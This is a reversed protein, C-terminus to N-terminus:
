RRGVRSRTAPSSPVQAAAAACSVLPRGTPATSVAGCRAARRCRRPSPARRAGVQGDRDAEARRQEVVPEPQGALARRRQGVDRAARRCGRGRGCRRRGRAHLGAGVVRGTANWAMRLKARSARPVATIRHDCSPKPRVDDVEVSWCVSRLRIPKLSPVLLMLSSSARRGRRSRRPRRRSRGPTSSAAAAVEDGPADPHQDLRPVGVEEGVLLCTKPRNLFEPAGSVPLCSNSGTSRCAVFFPVGTIPTLAWM